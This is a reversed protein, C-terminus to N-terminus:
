FVRESKVIKGKEDIIRYGNPPDGARRSREMLLRTIADKAVDRFNTIECEWAPADIPVEDRTMEVKYM